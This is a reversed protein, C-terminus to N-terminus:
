AEDLQRELADIAESIRIGVILLDLKDADDLARRLLALLAIIRENPSASSDM